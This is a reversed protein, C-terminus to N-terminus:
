YDQLDMKGQVLQDNIKLEEQLKTNPKQNENEHRSTKHDDQKKKDYIVIMKEASNNIDGDQEVMKNLEVNPQYFTEHDQKDERNEDIAAIEEISKNNDPVVEEQMQDPVENQQNLTEINENNNTNKNNAMKKETPGSKGIDERVENKNFISKSESVGKIKNSRAINPILFESAGAATALFYIVWQSASTNLFGFITNSYIALGLILAAICGYLIRL